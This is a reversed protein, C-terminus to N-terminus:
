CILWVMVIIVVVWMGVLFLVRFFGEWVVGCGSVYM